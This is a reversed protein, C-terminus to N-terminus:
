KLIFQKYDYFVSKFGEDTECYDNVKGINHMVTEHNRYFMAGIESLTLRTYKRLIFMMMQRSDSINRKGKRRSLLNKREISFYECSREIFDSINLQGQVPLNCICPECYIIM